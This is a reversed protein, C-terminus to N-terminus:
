VGWVLFTTIVVYCKTIENFTFNLHRGLSSGDLSVFVDSRQDVVIVEVWRFLVFGVVGNELSHKAEDIQILFVEVFSQLVQILHTFRLQFLFM